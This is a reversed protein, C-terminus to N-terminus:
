HRRVVGKMFFIGRSGILLAEEYATRIRKFVEADGGRDPHHLRALRRFQSEIQEITAGHPLDLDLLCQPRYKQRREEIPKTHFHERAQRSWVEGTEVLEARDLRYSEVDYERWTGEPRWTEKEVFVSNATVRIIRHPQSYLWDGVGEWMEGKDHDTYVYQRPAADKSNSAKHMRRQVCCKRHHAAAQGTHYSTATPRVALATECEEKSPAYGTAIPDADNFV